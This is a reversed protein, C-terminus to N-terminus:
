RVDAQDNMLTIQGAQTLSHTRDDTGPIELPFWLNRRNLLGSIVMRTYFYWDNISKPNIFGM